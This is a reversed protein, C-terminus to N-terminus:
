EVIVEGERQLVYKDDYKEPVKNKNCVLCLPIIIFMLIELGFAIWLIQLWTDIMASADHARDLQSEILDKDINTMDDACENLAAFEDLKSVNFRNQEQESELRVLLLPAFISVLLCGCLHLAPAVIYGVHAVIIICYLVVMAIGMSKFAGHKEYPSIDTSAAEIGDERTKGEAECSLKWSMTPRNWGYVKLDELERRSPGYTYYSPLRRQEEDYVGSAQRLQYQNTSLGNNRYRPDLM